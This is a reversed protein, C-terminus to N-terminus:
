ARDREAPHPMRVEYARYRHSFRYGLQQALAASWSNHADWSPYLGKDLCRLILRSACARALGRRRHLVHTDVEIEIGGQYVTYSSAGAVLRGQYLAAVGIGRKQYDPYGDFQGCLDRSWDEEMAQCYRKEDFLCFEYAPDCCHAAQELTAKDFAGPDKWFAYREVQVAVEGYLQNIQVDWHADQPVLIGFEQWTRHLLMQKSPRGAFFCFDGIQIQASGPRHLNDCWATGMCGQLCSWILTEDWGAFLPQLGELLNRPVQYITM